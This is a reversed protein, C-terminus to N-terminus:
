RSVAQAQVRPDILVYVIDLTTNILVYIVGVLLAFGRLASLDHAQVALFAYQGIGPWSFLQEIIINGGLLYGIVIGITTVVPLLSNRLGDRFLISPKSYGFMRATRTYDSDLARITSSRVVKLISPSTVVGLLLAPLALTRLAGWSSELNGTLVGDLVFMGTIHTPEDFGRPLRGTPNPFWGLVNSFLFIALLAIWFTATSSSLVTYVRIIGDGIRGRDAAALTGLVIGIVLAVILALLSLELTAPLRQMLEQLVPQSTRTSEGLDIQFLHWFYDGLQVIVPRDLGFRVRLADIQEQTAYQGAQVRAADGPLLQTILFVVLAIGVISVLATGLRAGIYRVM